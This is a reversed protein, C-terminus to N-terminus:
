AKHYPTGALITLARYVQEALMVRVLRHPWTQSGFALHLSAARRVAPGHGDAGGILFCVDGEGADRWSALQRAMEASTIDRGREDLCLIRAGDPCRALLRAAEEGPGGGSAVEAESVARMGVPRALKAARDLYTDVLGREPGSRIVGVAILHLRM